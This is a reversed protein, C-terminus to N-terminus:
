RGQFRASATRASGLTGYLAAGPCSTVYGDRHGSIVNLRVKTGKKYRNNGASTLTAKGNPNRGHLGLKWATLKGLANLAPASPRAKDFTGLVAIGTTDNNFGLTHAGIVPRAVGGARGEFITGCKDILFNYGVDRWHNSKVHYRYIGRIIAGSQSCSYGNGTASHHVFAAKVTKTYGFKPERLQENAGWGLRTIIAPRPGLQPQPAPVQGREEEGAAALDAQLANAPAAPIATAGPQALGANAEASDAAEQGAAANPAPDRPKAPRGPDVLELRMGDPLETVAQRGQEPAIRMQVADSDGVWLPATGGRPKDGRREPADLDPADDYHTQVDQWAGWRHSGTARTRVQPQGHLEARADSWVVGVLSFPRVVKVPMGLPAARGARGSHGGPLVRDRHGLRVLPLSQTSGPVDAAAAGPAAAAPAPAPNAGAPLALPVVLAAFTAAGLSTAVFARM